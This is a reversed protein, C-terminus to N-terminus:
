KKSHRKDFMFKRRLGYWGYGGGDNLAEIKSFYVYHIPCDYHKTLFAKNSGIKIKIDVWSM